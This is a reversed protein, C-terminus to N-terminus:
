SSNAPSPTQSSTAPFDPFFILCTFCPCLFPYCLPTHSFHFQTTIPISIVAAHRHLQSSIKSLASCSLPLAPPPGPWCRSSVSSSRVFLVSSSNCFLFGYLIRRPALICFYPFFPGLTVTRFILKPKVQLSLLYSTAWPTPPLTCLRATRRRSLMQTIKSFSPTATFPTNNLVSFRPQCAAHTSTTSSCLFCM